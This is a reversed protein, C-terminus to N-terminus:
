LSIHLSCTFCSLIFSEYNNKNILLDTYMLFYANLILNLRSFFQVPPRYSRGAPDAVTANMTRLFNVKV